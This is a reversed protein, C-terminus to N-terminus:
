TLDLEFNTSIKNKLDFNTTNKKKLDWFLQGVSFHHFAIMLSCWM